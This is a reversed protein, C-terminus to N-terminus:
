FTCVFSISLGTSDTPIIHNNITVIYCDNGIISLTVSEYSGSTPNLGIVKPNHPVRKTMQALKVQNTHCTIYFLIKVM